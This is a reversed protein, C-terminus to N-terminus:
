PVPPHLVRALENTLRQITAIQKAQQRQGRALAQELVAVRLLAEDRERIAQALGTRPEERASRPSM